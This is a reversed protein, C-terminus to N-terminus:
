PKSSKLCTANTKFIADDTKEVFTDYIYLRFGDITKTALAVFDDSSIKFIATYEYDCFDGSGADVDIKADKSLTTGDTFLVIAGGKGVNLTVGCAKLSLAYTTDMGKVKVTKWLCMHGSYPTFFNVTGEFQDVDKQISSCQAVSNRAIVASLLSCLIFLASSKMPSNSFPSLLKPM